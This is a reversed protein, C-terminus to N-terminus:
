YIRGFRTSARKDPPRLGKSLADLRAQWSLVAAMAFDFKRTPHVKRLVFLRRGQDDYLELPDRGANGVHTLLVGERRKDRGVERTVAGTDVGETYARVAYAMARPRNTWWERWYPFRSAWEGMTSTWHPPDGYALVVRYTRDLQKVADSVELEPVEWDVANEPREWGAFLRQRGTDLDTVVLGTSDFFRAGDFGVTVVAGDPIPDGENAEWKGMDFAVSESKRWRNM